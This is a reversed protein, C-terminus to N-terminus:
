AQRTYQFMHFVRLSHLGWRGTRKNRETVVPLILWACFLIQIWFFVVYKGVWTQDVHKWQIWGATVCLGWKMINFRCNCVEVAYHESRCAVASSVTQVEKAYHTDRHTYICSNSLLTWAAWRCSKSCRVRERSLCCACVLRSQSCSAWVLSPSLSCGM